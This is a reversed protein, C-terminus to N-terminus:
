AALEFGLPKIEQDTEPEPQEPMVQPVIEELPTYVAGESGGTGAVTCIVAVGMASEEFAVETGTAIREVTLTVTDGDAAVTASPPACTNWATTFPACSAVTVHFTPPTTPPFAVSPVIRFECVSGSLMVYVAGCLRGGPPETVTCALLLAFGLIEALAVTVKVAAILTVSVGTLAVRAM